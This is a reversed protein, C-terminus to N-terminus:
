ESKSELVSALDEVSVQILNQISTEFGFQLELEHKLQVAMISDLGLSHLKRGSDIQSPKTQLLEAVLEILKTEVESRRHWLNSKGVKEGIIARDCDGLGAHEAIESLM